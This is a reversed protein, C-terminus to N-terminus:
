LMEKQTFRQAGLVLDRPTDIDTVVGPDDVELRCLEESHSRLLHRAAEDDSLATLADLWRAHLGVPHGPSGEYFPRVMSVGKELHQRLAIYSKEEIFPMDGLAILLGQPRLGEAIVARVTEALTSGM